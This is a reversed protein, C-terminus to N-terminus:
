ARHRTNDGQLTLCDFCDTKRMVSKKRQWFGRFMAQVHAATRYVFALHNRHRILGAKRAAVNRRYLSQITVASRRLKIFHRLRAMMEPDRQGVGDGGTSAVEKKTNDM